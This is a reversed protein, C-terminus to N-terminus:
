ASQSAAWVGHVRQKPLTVRVTTGKGPASEIAIQGGHAEATAKVIPLGLGTGTKERTMASDIQGFPALAIPIEDPAMGIGTDSVAIVMDGGDDLALALVVKGDKPTFKIANSLLNLLVQRLARRDASLRPLSQQLRSTVTVGAERAAPEMTRLASEALDVMDLPEDRPEFRGAEIKAMDLVQNIVELLHRGSSRIDRAYDRYRHRAEPPLLDDAIIESFGIIANLPTRFEHSMNALFESKAQSAAEAEDAAKRLMREITKQETIDSFVMVTGGDATRTESVRLERGDKLRIEFANPPNRHRRLREEIYAEVEEPAGAYKGGAAIARVIETYTIGPRALSDSAGFLEKLRPNVLVQRDEADFLAFGDAFSAVADVLRTQADVVMPEAPALTGLWCDQGLPVLTVRMAQGDLPMAFTGGLEARISALLPSLHETGVKAPPFVTGAITQITRGVLAAFAQNCARISLRGSSADVDATFAAREMAPLLAGLAHDLVM